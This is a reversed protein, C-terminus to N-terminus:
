HPPLACHRGASGATRRASYHDTNRGGGHLEHAYAESLHLRDLSADSCAALVAAIEAREVDTLQM